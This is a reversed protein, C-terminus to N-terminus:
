EKLRFKKNQQFAEINEQEFLSKCKRYMEVSIGLDIELQMYKEQDMDKIIMGLDGDIKRIHSRLM